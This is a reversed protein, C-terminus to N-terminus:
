LGDCITMELGDTASVGGGAGPDLVLIQNYLTVGILDPNPDLLFPGVELNGSGDTVLRLRLAGVPNVLLTAGSVQANLPSIVLYYFCTANPLMSGGLITFDDTGISPAGGTSSITPVFGGTGPTGVGYNM